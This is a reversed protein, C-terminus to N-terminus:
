LFEPNISIIVRVAPNTHKAVRRNKRVYNLCFYIYVYAFEATFSLLNYTIYLPPRNHRQRNRPRGGVRHPIQKDRATAVVTTTSRAAAAVRTTRLLTFPRPARERAVNGDHRYTKTPSVVVASRVIIIIITYNTYHAAAAVAV